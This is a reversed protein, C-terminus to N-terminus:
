AAAEFWSQNLEFQLVSVGNEDIPGVVMVQFAEEFRTRGDPKKFLKKADKGFIGDLTYRLLRRWESEAPFAQVHGQDNSEYKRQGNIGISQPLIGIQALQGAVTPIFYPHDISLNEILESNMM